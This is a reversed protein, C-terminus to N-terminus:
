THELTRSCHARVMEEKVYIDSTMVFAFGFAPAGGLTAGFGLAAGFFADASGWLGLPQHSTAYLSLKIPM